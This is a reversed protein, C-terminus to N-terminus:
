KQYHYVNSYVGEFSPKQKQSTKKYCIQGGIQAVETPGHGICKSLQTALQATGAIALWISLQMTCVGIPSFDFDGKFFLPWYKFTMGSGIATVLSYLECLGAVLWRM